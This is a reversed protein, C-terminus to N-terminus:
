RPVGLAPHVAEAAQEDCTRCLGTGNPNVRRRECGSCLPWGMCDACREFGPVSPVGCDDCESLPPTVIHQGFPPPTYTDIREIGIVQPPLPVPAAPIHGIRRALFGAPSTIQAPLGGTLAARLADVGWGATLLANLREGQRSLAEGGIALRPERAAIELLLSTGPSPATAGHERAPADAHSASPPSPKTKQRNTKKIKNKKPEPRGPMPEDSTPEDTTPNESSPRSSSNEQAIAKPPAAQRPSDTIRYVATGLRGRADREQHRELYGYRELEKLGTMIADRGEPGSRVLAEVTLGYGDRHSAIELFLGRAKRSLRKDRALTNSVQTFRDAAMYGREIRGYRSM